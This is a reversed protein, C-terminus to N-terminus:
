RAFRRQSPSPPKDTRHICGAWCCPRRAGDRLDAVVRAVHRERTAPTKPSVTWCIWETRALPTLTRWVAAAGADALLAARLDAPLRHATGGPLAATSM